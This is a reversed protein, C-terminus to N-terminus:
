VLTSFATVKTPSNLLVSSPIVNLDSGITNPLVINRIVERKPVANQCQFVLDTQSRIPEWHSHEPLTPYM